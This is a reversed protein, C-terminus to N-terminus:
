PTPLTRAVRFGLSNSRDGTQAWRRYAVRVRREDSSWSGGRSARQDGKVEGFPDTAHGDSFPVSPLDWVWERVNGTMDFLGWGNAAKTGVAHTSGASNTTFWAVDEAIDSGSFLEKKGARAVYEWEAETLLRYGPANWAWKVTAGQVEYAPAIGELESLKNCFAIADNWTVKDVPCTPGCAVFHSPNAGMVSQYQAQTVEHAGVLFPRTLTVRHLQESPFRGAETVPSGMVFEGPEAKIAGRTVAVSPDAGWLLVQPPPGGCSALWVTWGLM